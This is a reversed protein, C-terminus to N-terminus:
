NINWILANLIAAFGVWFLYPLLLLGSIRDLRWFLKATLVILMLLPLIVILGAAPNRLGFFAWSWGANLVLQGFFLLIATKRRPAEAPLRLIRFLAYGMAVYLAAWVPAFVWDPPNLAPKALGEYWGPMGRATALRGALAAALLPLITMGAHRWAPTSSSANMRILIACAPQM